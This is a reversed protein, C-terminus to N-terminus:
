LKFKTDFIQSPHAIEFGYEENRYTQWSSTDIKEEVVIAEEQTVENKTTAGDKNNKNKVIWFDAGAIALVLITPIIIIISKNKM